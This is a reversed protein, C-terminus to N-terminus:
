IQITNHQFYDSMKNIEETSISDLMKKIEEMRWPSIFDDLAMCQIRIREEAEKSLFGGINIM